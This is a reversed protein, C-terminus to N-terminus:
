RARRHASIKTPDVKSFRAKSASKKRVEEQNTLSIITGISGTLAEPHAMITEAALAIYYGGSAGTEKIYALLPKERKLKLLAQFIEDSAVVSGGPSNISLVIGKINRDEEAQRLQELVDDAYVVEGLSLPSKQSLITGDLDLVLLKDKSKPNGQYFTEKFETPTQIEAVLSGAEQVV